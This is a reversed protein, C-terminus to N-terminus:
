LGDKKDNKKASPQKLVKNKFFKKRLLEFHRGYEVLFNKQCRKRPARM